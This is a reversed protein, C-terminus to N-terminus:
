EVGSRDKSLFEKSADFYEYNTYGPRDPVPDGYTTDIYTKVGDLLAVTWIHGVGNDTTGSQGICEIGNLKLLYNYFAIYGQCVALSNVVAGYGTFALDNENTGNYTDMDYKLNKTVYTYLVRAIEKQTMEETISGDMKLSDNVKTAEEEFTKQLSIFNEDEYEIGGFKITVIISNNKSTAQTEFSQLGSCLDIYDSRLNEFATYINNNMEESKSTFEKTTMSYRVNFTALNNNMMYLIVKEFDEVTSPNKPFTIDELTMMPKLTKESAVEPETAKLTTLEVLKTDSNYSVEVGVAEAIARLPLYTTGGYMVNSSDILSGEVLVSVGNEIIKDTKVIASKTANSSSVSSAAGKSLKVIATEKIYDVKLGMAEAVKRLPLYTTDNYTLSEGDLVVENLVVYGSSQIFTATKEVGKGYVTASMLVITLILTALFRVKKLIM